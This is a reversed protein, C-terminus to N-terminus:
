KKGADALRLAAHIGAIGGGVVLVNPNVPVHTKELSTHFAVRRVAGAVLAKAKRTAGIKESSVWSVHERINAMQFFYPNADGAATARQFTAEHMLPSCSAVVVRNIKGSQLDKQILEQGPDSCMFKYETAVTVNPLTKAFEVVEEINVKSAINIGCHCVYVGIKIQEPHKGNGNGNTNM